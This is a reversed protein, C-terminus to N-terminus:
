NSKPSFASSGAHDYRLEMPQDQNWLADARQVIIQLEVEQLGIRLGVVADDPIEHTQPNWPATELKLAATKYRLKYCYHACVWQGGFKNLLSKAGDKAGDQSHSLNKRARM